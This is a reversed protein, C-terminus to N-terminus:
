HGRRAALDGSDGSANGSPLREMEAHEYRAAEEPNNPYYHCGWCDPNVGAISHCKNCFKDPVPHCRRCDEIKVVSRDGQRVIVERIDNLYEWHHFRMYETERVCEEGSEEPIELFPIVEDISQGAVYDVVSYVFPTVIILIPIVVRGLPIKKPQINM